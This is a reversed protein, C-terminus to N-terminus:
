VHLVCDDIIHIVVSVLEGEASIMIANFEALLSDCDTLFVCKSTAVAGSSCELVNGDGSLQVRM